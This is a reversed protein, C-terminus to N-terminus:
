YFSWLRIDNEEDVIPPDFLTGDMMHEIYKPTVIDDFNFWLPEMTMISDNNSTSPVSSSSSSRPSLPVDISGVKNEVYGDFSAANAAAEAAVRKISKPSMLTAASDKLCLLAANYARAAAEATPYSGLWIRAKQNPPRIESVWSGWSRMRVGKYKSKSASATPQHHDKGLEKKVM